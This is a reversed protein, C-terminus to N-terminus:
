KRVIVIGNNPGPVAGGIMILNADADVRVIKLNHVTVQEAGMRGPMRLGPLTRGPFTNSGISGGHRFFEHTGHTMTQRQFKHRKIVGAFGRGKSTGIVHVKEGVKFVDCSLSDGVKKGDVTMDRFEKQIKPATIGLKKFHGKQPMTVLKDRKQGFGLCTAVYGDREVTRINTIQNPGLEIVTVPTVNGKDDFVRTMGLKKGILGTM